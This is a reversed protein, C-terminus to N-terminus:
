NGGGILKIHKPRRRVAGKGEVYPGQRKVYSEWGAGGSPSISSLFLTFLLLFAYHREFNNCIVVFVCASICFGHLYYCFRMLANLFATFLLMTQDLQTFVKYIIAFIFSRCM